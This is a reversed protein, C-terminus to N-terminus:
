DKQVRPAWVPNNNVVRVDQSPLWFAPSSPDVGQEARSLDIATVWIQSRGSMPLIEGYPRASAFALWALDRDLDPAWSPMTNAAEDLVEDFGISRSAADLRIPGGGDAEILRLEARPAGESATDAHVYAIFRSDPSYKPFYNNSTATGGVLYELAGWSGNQWAIRGIAGGGVSMNTADNTLTMAVYRGDPSWDPHTAKIPIPLRGLNPGITAGTRADRLTLVGNDAVVIREGDPSFSAWGMPRAPTSLIPAATELDITRLVEGDYGLAMQRGDRSVAHCAGCRTPDQPYLATAAESAPTSRVIGNTAASWHYLIGGAGSRAFRITAQPAAYIEGPTTTSAAEVVLMAEGDPHTAAILAWLASDPQWRTSGTLVSLHLSESDLRWRFADTPPAAGLQFVIRSLDQPFVTGHAPYLLQPVREDEDYVPNSDAFLMEAGAPPPFAGDVLELSIIVHVDASTELATDGARARARVLAHGGAANSTIYVGDKVAGPAPNDVSWEVLHTVDRRTGDVFRGIATFEVAAGSSLDSVTAIAAPPRLELSVLGALQGSGLEITETCGALLCLLVIARTM